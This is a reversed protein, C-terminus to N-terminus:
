RTTVRANEHRGRVPERLARGAQDAGPAAGEDPGAAGCRLAAVSRVRRGDAGRGASQDQGADRHDRRGPWLRRRGQCPLASPQRCLRRGALARPEPEQHRFGSADDAPAGRRGHGAPLLRGAPEDMQRAGAPRSQLPRPFHAFAADRRPSEMRTLAALGAIMDTMNTAARYHADALAAAAADDAATLYRLCANRLARRGAPGAGPDFAGPTTMKDYLAQIRPGQAAVVARILAIRGAFIGDPDPTQMAQALETDLPAADHLRCLRIPRRMRWCRASPTSMPSRTRWRAAGAAAALLIQTALKQAAEWRNFDDADAKMQFALEDASYGTVFNAPASFHRGVSVLPKQAVDVFRFVHKAETLEVVREDPGTTTEGELTLPMPNGNQGIFGLRVPIHM